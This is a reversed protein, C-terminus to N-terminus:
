SFPWINWLSYLALFAAASLSWAAALSLARENIRHQWWRRTITALAGGVCMGVVGRFLAGYYTMVVGPGPEAAFTWHAHYPAYMPRPWQGFDAGVMCLCGFTVM